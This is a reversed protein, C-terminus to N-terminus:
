KKNEKKEIKERDKSGGFPIAVSFGINTTDREAQPNTLSGDVRLELGNAFGLNLYLTDASTRGGPFGSLSHQYGIGLRNLGDAVGRRYNFEAGLNTTHADTDVNRNEGYLLEFATLGRQQLAALRQQVDVAETSKADPNTAQQQRLRALLPHSVILRGEYGRNSDNDVNARVIGGVGYHGEDAGFRWAEPLAIILDKRDSGNTGQLGKKGVTETGTHLYTLSLSRINATARGYTATTEFAIDQSRAFSTGNPLSGKLSHTADVDHTFRGGDFAFNVHKTPLDFGTNFGSGNLEQDTDVTTSMGNARVESGVDNHEARYWGGLRPRYIGNVLEFEAGLEGMKRSDGLAASIRPSVKLAQSLSIQRRFLSGSLELRADGVTKSSDTTSIDEVRSARLDWTKNDERPDYDRIGMEQANGGHSSFRLGTFFQYPSLSIYRNARAQLDAFSTPAAHSTEDASEDEAVEETDQQSRAFDDWNDALAAGAWLGLAGAGLATWGRATTFLARPVELVRMVLNKSTNLLDM